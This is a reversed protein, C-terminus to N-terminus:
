TTRRVGKLLTERIEQLRALIYKPEDADSPSDCLSDAWIESNVWAIAAELQRVKEKHENTYALAASWAESNAAEKTDGSGCWYALARLKGRYRRDQVYISVNASYRGGFYPSCKVHEWYSRVEEENTM